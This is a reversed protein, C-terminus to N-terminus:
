YPLDIPQISVVTFDWMLLVSDVDTDLKHYFYKVIVIFLLQKLICFCEFYFVTIVYIIFTCSILIFKFWIM